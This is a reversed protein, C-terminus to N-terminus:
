DSISPVKHYVVLVYFGRFSVATVRFSGHFVEDESDIMWRLMGTNMEVSACIKKEKTKESFSNSVIWM